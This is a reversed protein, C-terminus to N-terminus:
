ANEVFFLVIHFVETPQEFFVETSIYMGKKHHTNCPEMSGITKCIGSAAFVLGCIDMDWDTTLNTRFM